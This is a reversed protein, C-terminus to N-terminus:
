YDLNRHSITIGSIFSILEQLKESHTNKYIWEINPKTIENLYMLFSLETVFRGNIVIEGLYNKQSKERDLFVQHYIVSKAHELGYDNVFEELKDFHGTIIPAKIVEGWHSFKDDKEQYIVYKECLLCNEHEQGVLLIFPRGLPTIFNGEFCKFIETKM